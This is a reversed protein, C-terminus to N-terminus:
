YEKLVVDLMETLTQKVREPLESEFPVYSTFELDISKTVPNYVQAVGYKLVEKSDEEKPEAATLSFLGNNTYVSIIRM